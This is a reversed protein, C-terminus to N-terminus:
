IRVKEADRKKEVQKREEEEKKKEEQKAKRLRERLTEDKREKWTRFTAENELKKDKIDQLVSYQM